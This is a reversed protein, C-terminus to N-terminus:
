YTKDTQHSVQFHSGLTRGATVQHAGVTYDKVCSVSVCKVSGGSSMRGLGNTSSNCAFYASKHTIGIM